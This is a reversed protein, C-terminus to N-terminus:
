ALAQMLTALWAAEVPMPVTLRWGGPSRLVLSAAEAPSTVQVPVLTMPPVTKRQADRPAPVVDTKIRRRWYDFTPRKLQERECYARQTLGSALWAAIQGEWYQRKKIDIKM